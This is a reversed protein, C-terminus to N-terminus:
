TINQKAAQNATYNEKAEESARSMVKVFHSKMEEPSAM